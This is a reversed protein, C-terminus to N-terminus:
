ISLPDLNHEEQAQYHYESFKQKEAIHEFDPHVYPHVLGLSM